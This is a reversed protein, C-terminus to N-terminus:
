KFTGNHMDKCIHWEDHCRKCLWIVDLPKDYDEHHGEVRINSDCITCDEKVVAGRQVANNLKIRADIKKRYFGDENYRKKHRLKEEITKGFRRRWERSQLNACPQCYSHNGPVREAGCPCLGTQHKKTRGTELRWENDQERKCAGCYGVKPNEKIAGCKYCKPSRGSGIPPLGKEARAKAKKAKNKEATCTRCYGSSLYVSDKEAKCKSCYISRGM